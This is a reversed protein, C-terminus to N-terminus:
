QTYFYMRLGGFFLIFVMSELVIFYCSGITSELMSKHQNLTIICVILTKNGAINRSSKHLLLETLLISCDNLVQFYM